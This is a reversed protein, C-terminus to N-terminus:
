DFDRRTELGRRNRWASPANDGTDTLRGIEITCAAGVGLGLAMCAGIGRLTKM